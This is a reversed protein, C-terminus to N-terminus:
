CEWFRPGTELGAWVARTREWQDVARADHWAIIRAAVAELAPQATGADQTFAPLLAAATAVDNLAGFSDQLRAFAQLDPEMRTTDFLSGFFRGAYRLKKVAIRMDHRQEITLDELRAGFRVVSRWRRRLMRLAFPRAARAWPASASSANETQRWARTELLAEVALAFEVFDSGTRWSRLVGDLAEARKVGVRARLAAFTEPDGVEPAATDLIDTMLVDLDRVPSLMLALSRARTTLPDIVEPGFSRRFLAMGARLRRLGVRMQHVGRTDGAEVVAAENGVVHALAASALTSFAAEVTCDPHLPPWVAKVAVPGRGEALSYGRGAKSRVGLRAPVQATIMQVLIFLDAPTGRLLELELDCVPMTRCGAVIQGQDLAAELHTGDALIVHARRRNIRTEFLCRLPKVDLQAQIADRLAPEPVLSPDPLCAGPPLFADFEMRDKLVSHATGATKVTQVVQGGAERLRFGFGRRRFAFDGTDFYRTRIPEPHATLLPALWGLTGLASIQAPDLYLVLEQERSRATGVSGMTLGGLPRLM